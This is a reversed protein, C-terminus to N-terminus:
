HRRSARLSGPRQRTYAIRTHQCDWGIEVALDGGRKALVDAAAVDGRLEDRGRLCTRPRTMVRSARPERRGGRPRFSGEAVEVGVDFEAPVGVVAVPDRGVLDNELDRSRRARHERALARREVEQLEQRRGRGCCASEDVGYGARAADDEVRAFRQGAQAGRLFVGYPAAARLIMADAEVVHDEDLLVVDGGRARQRAGDGSRAARGRVNGTSTSTSDSASNASARAARGSIMRNSSNLEPRCACRRDCEVACVRPGTFISAEPLTDSSVTRAM